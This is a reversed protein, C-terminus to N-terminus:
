PTRGQAASPTMSVADASPLRTMVVWQIRAEVDSSEIRERKFQASEFALARHARLAALVFRHIAQADGKVPLTMRYRMFSGKTDIQPRYDGRTISLHQAQALELIDQVTAPIDDHALLIEEFATLHTPAQMRSQAPRVTTSNLEALQRRASDLQSRARHGQVAALVAVAMCAMAFWGLLGFRRSVIRALRTCEWTARGLAQDFWPMAGSGTNMGVM